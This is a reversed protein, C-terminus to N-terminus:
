HLTAAWGTTLLLQTLTVSAPQRSGGKQQLYDASHIAQTQGVRLSCEGPSARMLELQSGATIGSWTAALDQVGPLLSGHEAPEAWPSCRTQIIVESLVWVPDMLLKRIIAVTFEIMFHIDLIDPNFHRDLHSYPTPKKWYCLEPAKLSWDCFITYAIADSDLM